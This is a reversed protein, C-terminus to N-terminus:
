VASVRHRRRRRHDAARAREAFERMVGRGIVLQDSLPDGNPWFQKAMAENIVVVPPAAKDDRENFVRGRKVPIKFVDFYGPSRHGMRRRRSVPGNTLPRGVIDAAAWLRGALPVCCTASALEVGPLAGLREVGDRILRDVGDATVFRPWQAVDADDARQASDFGPDVAGARRLHSDAPGAGVLLILALAVEM